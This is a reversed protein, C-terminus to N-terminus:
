KRAAAAKIPEQKKSPKPAPTPNVVLEPEKPPPPAQLGPQGWGPRHGTAPYNGYAPYGGSYPYRGYYPTPTNVYYVDLGQLGPYDTTHQFGPAYESPAASGTAAPAPPPAAPRPAPAPAPKPDPLNKPERAIVTVAGSLDAKEAKEPLGTAGDTFHTVGDDDVWTYVDSQSLVVALALAIM